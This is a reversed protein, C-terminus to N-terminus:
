AQSGPLSPIEFEPTFETIGVLMLESRAIQVQELLYTRVLSTVERMIPFDKVALQNAFQVYSANSSIASKYTSLAKLYTDRKKGITNIDEIKM